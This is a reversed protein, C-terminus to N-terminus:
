LKAGAHQEDRVDHQPPAGEARGHTWSDDSALEGLDRPRRLQDHAGAGSANSAADTGDGAVNGGLEALRSLDGRLMRLLMRRAKDEKTEATRGAQVASRWTSLGAALTRNRMRQVSRELKELAERRDILLRRWGGWGASLQRNMMHKLSPADVQKCRM